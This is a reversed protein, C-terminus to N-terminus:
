WWELASTSEPFSTELGRFLILIGGFTSKFFLQLLTQFLFKHILPILVKLDSLQNSFFNFCIKSYFKTLFTSKCITVLCLLFFLAYMCIYSTPTYEAMHIPYWYVCVWFTEIVYWCSLPGFDYRELQVNNYLYSVKFLMSFIYILAVSANFFILDMANIYKEM